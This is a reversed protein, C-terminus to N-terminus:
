NKVYWRLTVQATIAAVVVGVLVVFPAALWLDSNTVRAVLQQDYVAKLARDVVLIKAAFMGGVALVAGILAAMMAELVFPAQTYWRSAGVMRMISIESRRSYATIQVMNMILFIAAIAQVAAVIFSANRISDLNRMAAELNDGQDVINTVAPNDRLADIPASNEPDALRVHFAAPLADKETQEVLQPDSEGFLEVFREYSQEKNRFTVSKVAEDGELQQKIESCEPSACTPDSGSIEDDLQVMVEIRDFYIDKTRETMASLLFGTALLALAISTTIIMAITMTMNRRLGSFAERFVFNTKM